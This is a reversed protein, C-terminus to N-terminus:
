LSFHHLARSRVGPEFRIGVLSGAGGKVLGVFVALVFTDVFTPMAVSIDKALRAYVHELVACSVSQAM